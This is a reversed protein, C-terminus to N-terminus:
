LSTKFFYFHEGEGMKKGGLLPSFIGGVGHQGRGERGERGGEECGGQSHQPERTHFANRGGEAMHGDILDGLQTM